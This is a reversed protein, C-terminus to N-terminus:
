PLTLSRARTTRTQRMGDFLPQWISGGSTGYSDELLSVAAGRRLTWALEWGPLGRFDPVDLAFTSGGIWGTTANVDYIIASLLSQQQRLSAGVARAGVGPLVGSVRPRVGDAEGILSWSFPAPVDAFTVARDGPTRFVISAYRFVDTQPDRYATATLDQLESGPLTASPLGYHTVATSDGGQGLYVFGAFSGPFFRTVGPAHLGNSWYVSDAGLNTVSATFPVALLGETSGFLVPAIPNTEAESLNRRVVVERLVRRNLVSGYRSFRVTLPGPPGNGIIFSNRSDAFGQTFSVITREDAALGNMSASIARSGTFLTECEVNTLDTLEARTVYRLRVIVNATNSAVFRVFAIGIRNGSVNFVYDSGTRTIPRWPGGDDQVAFFRPRNQPDCFRITASEGVRPTVTITVPPRQDVFGGLNLGFSVVYNGPVTTAPVSIEARSTDGAIASPVFRVVIGDAPNVVTSLTITGTGNVPPRQFEVPVTIATGAAVSIPDANNFVPLAGSEADVVIIGISTTGSNAGPGAATITRVDTRSPATASPTVTMTVLSDGPALVAPTFRFALDAAPAASLTVAGAFPAVRSVVFTTSTGRGKQAVVNRRISRLQVAGALPPVTVQINASSVLVGVGVIGVGALYTGPPTSAPVSVTVTATTIAGRLTDPSVTTLTGPTGLPTLAVPQAYGGIRTLRLTTTASGAVPITLRASDVSVTFTPAPTITLQLPTSASISGATARVTVTSVGTPSTRSSALVLQATSAGAALTSPTFAATVGAPAGDISFQVPDTSPGSRTITLAIPPVTTDGAALSVAAPIASLALTSPETPTDGGCGALLFLSTWWCRRTRVRMHM